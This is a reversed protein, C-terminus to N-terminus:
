LGDMKPPKVGIKPEVGMQNWLVDPIWEVDLSWVGHFNWTDAQRLAGHLQALYEVRPAIDEWNISYQPTKM